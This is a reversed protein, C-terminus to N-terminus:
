NRGLPVTLMVGGGFDEKPGDGWNRKYYASGDVHPGKDEGWIRKTYEGKVYRQNGGYEDNEVRADVTIKGKGPSRRYRVTETTSEGEFVPTGNTNLVLICAISFLIIFAISQKM